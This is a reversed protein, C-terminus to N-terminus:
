RNDLLSALELTGAKLAEIRDVLKKSQTKIKSLREIEAETKAILEFLQDDTCTAVDVGNVYTKQTITLMDPDKPQTFPFGVCDALDLKNLKLHHYYRPTTHIEDLEDTAIQGAPDNLWQAMLLGCLQRSDLNNGPPLKQARLLVAGIRCRLQELQNEVAHRSSGYDFSNPAPGWERQLARDRLHRFYKPSRELAEWFTKRVDAMLTPDALVLALAQRVHLSLTM